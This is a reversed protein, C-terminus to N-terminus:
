RVFSSSNKVQPLVVSVRDAETAFDNRGPDRSIM